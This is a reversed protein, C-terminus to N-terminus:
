KVVLPLTKNFLAMRIDMPQDPCHLLFDGQKWQGNLGMKDLNNRAGKNRYLSYEYSNIFKQPVIKVIHQYQQYTEMMAGQELYPHNLYQPMKDMIMQLWARGAFDNRVFLSDAQIGNFDTALTVSYGEYYFETLPITFNTIMTDTGSIFLWDHQNKEMIQLLLKVKWWGIVLDGFDDTKAIADYGWKEAYLKRNNEWTLDSM